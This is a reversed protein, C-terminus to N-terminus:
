WPIEDSPGVGPCPPLHYIEGTFDTIYGSRELAERYEPSSIAAIMSAIPEDRSLDEDILLDYSIFGLPVFSLGFPAASQSTGIGADVLGDSVTQAIGGIHKMVEETKIQASANALRCRRLANEFVEEEPSSAPMEIITRGALDEIGLGEKSVIGVQLKALHLTVLGQGGFPVRIMPRPPGQSPIPSDIMTAHCIRQLLGQIGNERRCFCPLLTGGWAKVASGLLDLPEGHVGAILLTREVEDMGATVVADVASGAEYGEVSAPIHLYGNSRVLSMQVSAGRSQHLGVYRGSVRGISLNIFEDFGCDSVTNQGLEVRCLQGAQPKVAGWTRLLPIVLERLVLHAALPYGPLGIVPKDDIKALLAPKGPKIAVGHFLVEGLEALATECYDRTGASSGGTVIVLDHVGLATTVKEKILDPDDPIHPYRTCVVGRGGLMAEILISNSEVVQGPGPLTGSVILESGTPIVGISIQKVEVETIGCAALVGIDTPRILHDRPLILEGGSLDEGKKRINMGPAIGKRIHPRGDELWCDEIMVVADCGRPIPNGTNVPVATSLSIPVQDRAGTTERSCIAFGDMAAVDASPVTYGAYVPATTIMGKAQLIPVQATREPPPFSTIMCEIAQGLTVQDLYRKM